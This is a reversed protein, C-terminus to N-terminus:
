YKAPLAILAIAGFTCGLQVFLWTSGQAMNTAARERRHSYISAATVLYPVVWLWSFRGSTLTLATTSLIMILILMYAVFPAKRSRRYPQQSLPIHPRRRSPHGGTSSDTM